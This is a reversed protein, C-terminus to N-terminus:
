YSGLQLRVTEKKKKYVNKNENKLARTCDTLAEYVSARRGSADRACTLIIYIITRVYM